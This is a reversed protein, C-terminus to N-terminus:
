NQLPPNPPTPLHPISTGKRRCPRKKGPCNPAGRTGEKGGGWRECRERAGRARDGGGTASGGGTAMAAHGETPLRAPQEGGSEEQGRGPLCEPTRVCRQTDADISILVYLCVHVYRYISTHM